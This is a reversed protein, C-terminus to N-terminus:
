GTKLKQRCERWDPYYQDLLGYFRANHGRELLHLLEHVVVYEVCDEPYAGLWVSISINGTRLSCSGWQSRTDRITVKSCRVGLIRQWKDFLSPLLDQLCKEYERKLEEKRKDTYHEKPVLLKEQYEELRKCVRPQNLIQVAKEYSLSHPISIFILKPNEPRIRFNVNKVNKKTIQITNGNWKFEKM